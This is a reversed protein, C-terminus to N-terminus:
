SPNTYEIRGNVSQDEFINQFAAYGQPDKVQVTDWTEPEIELNIRWDQYRNLTDVMLQTVYLPYHGYVGGHYGDAFWTSQANVTSGQLLFLAPLLAYVITILLQNTKM